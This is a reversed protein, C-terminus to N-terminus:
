VGDFDGPLTPTGTIGLFVENLTYGLQWSLGTALAAM